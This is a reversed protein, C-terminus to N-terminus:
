PEEFVTTDRVSAFVDGLALLVDRCTAFREVDGRLRLNGAMLAEQANTAGRALAVATPYDCVFTVDPQDAHSDSPDPRDPPGPEVRVGSGDLVVRYHVDGRPTGHVEQGLVVRSGAEIGEVPGLARAADDLAALWAATLFV